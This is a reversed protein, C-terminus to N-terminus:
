AAAWREVVKALVGLPVGGTQVVTDNFGRVDFRAGMRAKAADRLRNIENHGTKYGLAQGPWTCYRNM